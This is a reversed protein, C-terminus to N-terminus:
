KTEGKSIEHISQLIRLYTNLGARLATADEAEVTIVLQKGLKASSRMRDAKAELIADKIALLQKRNGKVRLEASLLM